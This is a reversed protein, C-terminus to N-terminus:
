RGAPSPSAAELTASASRVAHGRGSSSSSTGAQNRSASLARGPVAVRQFDQIQNDVGVFGAVGLAICTAAGALLCGAVWYWLRQPHIPSEGQTELVV